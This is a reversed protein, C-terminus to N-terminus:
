KSISLYLRQYQESMTKASFYQKVCERAEAGLKMLDSNIMKRISNFCDNENDLKFLIGIKDDCEFIEKHQPIDSLVVPLGTAMGELVGNPMGESISSSIYVDSAQLYEAVNNVNGKFIINSINGYMNKLANYELGDGLLLLTAKSLQFYKEFIKLLFRQNKRSILQGTYVFIIRNSPIGLRKRMKEKEEASIPCFKSTDIGNRIYDFSMHNNIKYIESLSKSCTVVKRSNKVAKLQLYTLIKGQVLGFKSIYDDNMYNHLTIMQCNLNIKSVAYDPFVGLSHIVDPNISVLLKKLKQVMNLIIAKKSLPLFYHKINLAEFKELESNNEERYITIIIPELVTRDMNSILNLMVQMPGSKKCSTFVYVVRKLKM